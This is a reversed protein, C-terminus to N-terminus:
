IFFLEDKHDWLHWTIIIINNIDLFVYGNVIQVFMKKKAFEFRENKVIHLM